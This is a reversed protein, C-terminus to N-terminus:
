QLSPHLPRGQPGRVNVKKAMDQGGKIVELWGMLAKRQEDTLMMAEPDSVWCHIGRRGSYVWLLHRFGFQERLSQDLIKVAVAIFGWCRKCIGKGSCCTRIEDYDTMDIDFVLERQVPQLAGTRLTKKDRPRANYIAGIEFRSPNLRVIQKKLEEANTFSNYRLYVDGQLTFAFERHTFLRTPAHQHNLWNFISKFPYLRKYFAMMVEPASADVEMETSM